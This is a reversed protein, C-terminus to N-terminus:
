PVETNIKIIENNAKVNFDITLTRASSNFTLLFYTLDTVGTTELIIKKFIGEVRNLGVGKEFIEQFYPIGQSQDTFIEGYFTRIRNLIKQRVYYAGDLLVLKNNEVSLDGDDNLKLTPM